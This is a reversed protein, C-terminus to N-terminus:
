NICSSDRIPDDAAMSSLARWVDLSIQNSVFHVSADGMSVNVGGPHRSRASVYIDGDRVPGPDGSSVINYHGMSDIGSNPTFLTMFQAAGVDDNFFDGRFDFDADNIAQVVEGMFMTNSLGDTVDAAKCRRGVVAGGFMTPPGFPGARMPDVGDPKAVSRFYDCYGWNVVYNGRLRVYQDGQWIGGPRDSPCYYMSIPINLVPRNIPDYFGYDYNFGAHLNAGELHPWLPIVFTMRFNAAGVKTGDGVVTGPGNAGYIIGYPYSGTASEYNAMALGWQKLNNLCQARRAAERAAQVAPLLLAILIGIITIVVLLEVLTFGGVPQARGVQSRTSSMCWRWNSRMIGDERNEEGRETERADGAAAARRRPLQRDMPPQRWGGARRRRNRMPCVLSPGGLRRRRRQSWQTIKALDITGRLKRDVWVTLQKERLNFRVAYNHWQVSTPIGSRIGANIEGKSPTYLGIEPYRAGAARFFVSLSRDGAITAPQEGITINIRDQIQVADFQVIFDDRLGYEFGFYCTGGFGTETFGSRAGEVQFGPWHVPPRDSPWTTM